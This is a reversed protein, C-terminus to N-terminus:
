AASREAALERVLAEALATADAVTDYDVNAATDSMLHYNSLAKTDDVSAITATPYGGRSTIVSDTSTRARLGRRLPVGIREAVAAVRDRWAPDTYDEMVFPGEGELMVLHPSGITDLNLVATRAPDLTPFRRAAFARIGGQLSEEAGCSVLMVRLGDVPRERLAAALALLAAVATLNDNAGPVTPSREIDVFTLVSLAGLGAGTRALRPRGGLAGAVALLPGAVVPWWLPLSTDIREVVGPFRAAFARHGSQDFVLGTSAADHHALVVLTRDAEADGTVAVVNQTPRRRMTLRRFLQPGNSVEEVIGAIAVVGLAAGLARTRPRPTAALGAALLGVASQGALSRAYGGYATEEDVEVACGAERLRDAIWTAARREGDSASPREIAALLEVTGRLGDRDITTRM